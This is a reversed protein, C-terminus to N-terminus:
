ADVGAQRAQDGAVALAADELGLRLLAPNGIGLHLARRKGVGRDLVIHRRLLDGILDQEHAARAPLRNRTLRDRDAAIRLHQSLRPFFTASDAVLLRMFNGNNFRLPPACSPRPFPPPTRTPAKTRATSYFKSSRRCIAPKVTRKRLKSHM